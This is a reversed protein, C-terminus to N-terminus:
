RPLRRDASINACHATVLRVTEDIREAQWPRRLEFIPVDRVLRLCQAFHEAPDGVLPIYAGRYTNVALARIAAAGAIPAIEPPADEGHPETLVYLAALPLPTEGYTDGIPLVYKEVGHYAVDLRDADRGSREVADRWLRMRPIGPQAFHDGDPEETVVCIDDSLLASGGDHFAAALTSKGAGSRGIFGIARGGIDISNAHLPLMGRQHLLAGMASGLLFLRINAAPAAPEPDIEISSGGRVRYRGAGTVPLVAADDIPNLGSELLREPMPVTGMTVTVDPPSAPVDRLEPLEIESALTLGFVRYHRLPGASREAFSM